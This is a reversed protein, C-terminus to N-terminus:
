VAFPIKGSKKFGRSGLQTNAVLSDAGICRSAASLALAVASFVSKCRVYKKLLKLLLKSNGDSFVIVKRRARM